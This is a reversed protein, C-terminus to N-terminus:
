FFNIKMANEQWKDISPNYYIFNNAFFFVYFLNNLIEINVESHLFSVPCNSFKTVKETKLEFKQFSEFSYIFGNHYRFLLHEGCAINTLFVNTLIRKEDIWLYGYTTVRYRHGNALFRYDTNYHHYRNLNCLPYYGKKLICDEMWKWLENSFLWIGNTSTLHMQKFYLKGRYSLIKGDDAFSINCWHEFRKGNFWIVKTNSKFLIGKENYKDILELLVIPIFM